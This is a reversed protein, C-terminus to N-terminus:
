KGLSKIWEIEKDTLYRWKGAPLDGLQLKGESVRILRKVKIGVNACMKRIQRNHGESITILVEGSNNGPVVSVARVMFDDVHMPKKLAQIEEPMLPKPSEVLYTKRIEFKPHTLKYAADGDDTMLLLGESFMDLRGVPFLRKDVGKILETVNRRNKEDSATTVYMQPKNLMIYTKTEQPKILTYGVTIEDTIDARDGISAVSGNVRVQGSKILEEARRRSCYGSQAIIKQLKDM